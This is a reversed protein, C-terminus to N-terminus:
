SPKNKELSFATCISFIYLFAAVIWFYRKNEFFDYIGLLIPLIIGASLVLILALWKLKDSMNESKSIISNGTVVKMAMLM